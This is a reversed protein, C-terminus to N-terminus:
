VSSEWIIDFNSPVLSVKFFQKRGKLTIHKYLVIQHGGVMENQICIVKKKLKVPECSSIFQSEPHIVALAKAM